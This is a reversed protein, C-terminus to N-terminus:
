KEEGTFKHMLARVHGLAEEDDKFWFALRILSKIHTLEPTEQNSLEIFKPMKASPENDARVSFKFLERIEEKTLEDKM